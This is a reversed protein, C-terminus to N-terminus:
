QEFISLTITEVHSLEGGTLGVTVQLMYVDSGVHVPAVYVHDASPHEFFPDFMLDRMISSISRNADFAPFEIREFEWMRVFTIAVDDRFRVVFTGDLYRVLDGEEVGEGLVNDFVAREDGLSLISGDETFIVSKLLVDNDSSNENAPEDELLMDDDPDNEDDSEDELSAEENVDEEPEDMATEGPSDSEVPVETEGGGCAALILVLFLVLGSILMKKMILM